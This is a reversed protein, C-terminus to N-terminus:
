VVSKRDPELGRAFDGLPVSSAPQGDVTLSVTGEKLPLRAAQVRRDDSLVADVADDQPNGVATVQLTKILEPHNANCHYCEQANEWVLKWNAQVDYTITHAVAASPLDYPTVLEDGLGLLDALPEAPSDSLNVFVLGQWTAVQAQRLSFGAPDFGPPMKPAGRLTGDIRYTWQHYPCVLRKATGCGPDVLRAGRHRCLNHYATLEGGPTRAVIVSERGSEVTLYQGPERLQSQHGAYLWSHNFIADVERDYLDASVYLDRPIGIGREIQGRMTSSPLQDTM